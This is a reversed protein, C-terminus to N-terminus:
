SVLASINPLIVPAHTRAHLINEAVSVRLLGVMCLSWNKISICMLLCPKGLLSVANIAHVPLPLITEHCPLTGESASVLACLVLLKTEDEVNTTNNTSIEQCKVVLISFKSLKTAFRTTTGRSM